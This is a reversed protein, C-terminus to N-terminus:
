EHFNTVIDDVLAILQKNPTMKGYIESFKEVNSELRTNKSTEELLSRYSPLNPSCAVLLGQSALRYALLSQEIQLPIALQKCGKQLMELTTGHNCNTIVIDAQQAVAELNVLKQSFILNAAAYSEIEQQNISRSVILTPWGLQKLDKLLPEFPTSHHQMYIYVKPGDGKPWTPNDENKSSHILGWYRANKRKIYHDAEPLTLYYHNSSAFLGAVTKLPKGGCQNLAQNISALVKEESTVFRDRPVSIQPQISPM